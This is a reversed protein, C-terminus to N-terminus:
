FIGISCIGSVLCRSRHRFWPLQELFSRAIPDSEIAAEITNADNLRADEHNHQLVGWLTSGYMRDSDSDRGGVGAATDFTQFSGGHGGDLTAIYVDEPSRQLIFTECGFGLQELVKYVM